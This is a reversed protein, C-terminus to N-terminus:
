SPEDTQEIVWAAYDPNAAVIPLAIVCPVEYPHEHNARDIITPVLAARTHITVRAEQQDEITGKWRYISRVPYAVNGCAAIRDEVLSRAFGALWEVDNATVIVEVIEAAM